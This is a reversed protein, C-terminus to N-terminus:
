DCVTKTRTESGAPSSDRVSKTVCGPRGSVERERFAPGEHEKVRDRDEHRPEGIRVGGVPTDVAIQAYSSLPASVTIAATAALLILYKKM